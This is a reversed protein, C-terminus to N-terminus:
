RQQSNELHTRCTRLNKSGRASVNPENSGGTYCRRGRREVPEGEQGIRVGIELGGGRGTSFGGRGGRSGGLGFLCGGWGFDLTFVGVLTIGLLSLLFLFLLFPQVPQLTIPCLSCLVTCPRPSLLISQSSSHLIPAPSRRRSLGFNAEKMLSSYPPPSPSLMLVTKYSLFSSICDIVRSLLM